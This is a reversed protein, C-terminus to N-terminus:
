HNDIDKINRLYQLPIDSTPAYDDGNNKVEILENFPTSVDNLELSITICLPYTNRM